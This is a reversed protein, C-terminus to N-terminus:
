AAIPGGEAATQPAGRDALATVADAIVVRPRQFNRLAFRDCATEAGSRRGLVERLYWHMWEHCYLFRLVERREHFPVTESVWEFAWGPGPKRRAAHYVVENWPQFPEPVRLVIRRVDFECLASLSPRSRYRLAKVVVEYDGPTPMGELARLADEATFGALASRIKIEPRAPVPACSQPASRWARGPAEALARFVTTQAAAPDSM